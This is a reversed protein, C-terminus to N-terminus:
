TLVDSVIEGNDQKAPVFDGNTEKAPENDDLVEMSRRSTPLVESSLVDEEVKPEAQSEVAKTAEVVTEDVEPPVM